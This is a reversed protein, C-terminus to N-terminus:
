TLVATTPSRLSCKNFYKVLTCNPLTNGNGAVGEYMESSFVTNIVACSLHCIFTFMLRVKERHTHMLKDSIIIWYYVNSQYPGIQM